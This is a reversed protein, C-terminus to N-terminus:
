FVRTYVLLFSLGARSWPLSERVDKETVKIRRLPNKSMFIKNLRWTKSFLASFAVTFGTFILWPWSMCAIDAAEQSTEDDISLPIIASGMFLTGVCIIGLFVPQSSKVVRHHRNHWTWGMLGLSAGIIIACLVYGVIAIHGLYNYNFDLPPLELPIRLVELQHTIPVIDTPLTEDLPVGEDVIGRFAQLLVDASQYGMNYPLQGVLADVYSKQMLTLQVPLTDAIITLVDRNSDVFHKWDTTNPNFM